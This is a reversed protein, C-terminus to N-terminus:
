TPNRGKTGKAKDRRWDLRGETIAVELEKVVFAPDSLTLFACVAETPCTICVKFRGEDFFISMRAPKRPNGRNQKCFLLDHVNPYMKRFGPMDLYTFENEEDQGGDEFSDFVSPGDM